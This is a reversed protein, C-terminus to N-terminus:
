LRCGSCWVELTLIGAPREHIVSSQTSLETAARALTVYLDYLMMLSWIGNTPQCAEGSAVELKKRTAGEKGLAYSLEDDRFVIRDTDFGKRDSVKERVGRTYYGPSKTEVGSMVKLEAGRRPRDPGFIALKESRNGGGRRADEQKNMFFMLTGWEEEMTGLTARRAGTIYGICESPVEVVTCDDRDEWGEVYVPGALQDFLWRMYEKARRRESKTGSFLALNGVYQVVAQSSRELKKRTGGQKGLAYSLEDDKFTMSDTGWTGTEDKGKDRDLVEHRIKELYGPVKTEVASLVKLESGRRGRVDGFIALKEHERGRGRSGDVECFFMLTSWEEEISRLFNGARGTVFGVAEQPVNLMTLDDDDYEETVNVPGTRQAMVGECYWTEKLCNLRPVRFEQLNRRLRAVKASFSLQMMTPLRSPTLVMTKMKPRLAVVTAVGPVAIREIEAAAETRYLCLRLCLIRLSSGDPMHAEFPAAKSHRLRGGFSDSATEKQNLFCNPVPLRNGCVAETLFSDHDREDEFYRYKCEPHRRLSRPCNHCHFQAPAPAKLKSATILKKAHELRTDLGGVSDTLFESKTTGPSRLEKWKSSQLAKLRRSWQCGDDSVHDQNVWDLLRKHRILLQLTKNLELKEDKLLRIGKELCQLVPGLDRCLRRDQGHRTSPTQKRRCSRMSVYNLEQMPPRRRTAARKFRQPSLHLHM